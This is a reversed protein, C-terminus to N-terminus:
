VTFIQKRYNYIDTPICLIVWCGGVIPEPSLLLIWCAAAFNDPCWVFLKVSVAINVRCCQTLTPITILPAIIPGNQHLYHQWFVSANEQGSQCFEKIGTISYIYVFLCSGEQQHTTHHPTHGNTINIRTESTLFSLTIVSHIDDWTLAIHIVGCTINYHGFYLLVILCLKSKAGICWLIKFGKLKLYLIIHASFFSQSNQETHECTSMVHPSLM